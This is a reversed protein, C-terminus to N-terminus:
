DNNTDQISLQPIFLANWHAMCYSSENMSVIVTSEKIELDALMGFSTGVTETVRPLKCIYGNKTKTKTKAKKTKNQKKESHGIEWEM